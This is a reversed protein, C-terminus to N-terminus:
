RYHKRALEIIRNTLEDREEDSLDVESRYLQLKIGKRMKQQVNTKQKWEVIDVFAKDFQKIM